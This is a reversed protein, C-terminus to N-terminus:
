VNNNETHSENPKKEAPKATGLLQVQNAKIKKRMVELGNQDKYLESRIKGEVYVQTGKRLLGKMKLQDVSKALQDWVEINHWETEVKREGNKDLYAENTALTFQAVVRNNELYKVVPDMGLNGILMVKNLSM